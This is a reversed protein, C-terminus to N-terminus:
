LLFGNQISNNIDVPILSPEPSETNDHMLCVLGDGQVPARLPGRELPRAQIDIYRIVVSLAEVM